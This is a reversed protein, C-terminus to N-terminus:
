RPQSKLEADARQHHQSARQRLQRGGVPVRGHRGVEPAAPALLIERGAQLASKVCRVGVPGRHPLSFSVCVWVRM